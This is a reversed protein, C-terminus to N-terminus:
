LSSHIVVIHKRKGRCLYVVNGLRRQLHMARSNLELWYVILLLLAGREPRALSVESMVEQERDSEGRRTQCSTISTCLVQPLHWLRQQGPDRFSQM